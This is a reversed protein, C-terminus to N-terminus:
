WGKYNDKNQKLWNKYYNPNQKLWNQHYDPNKKVWTRYYDPNQKAWEKRKDDCKLCIVRGKIPKNHGCKCCIGLSKRLYYRNKDRNSKTNTRLNFVEKKKFIKNTRLVM